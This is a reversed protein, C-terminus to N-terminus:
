RRYEVVEVFRYQSNEVNEGPKYVTVDIQRVQAPQDHRGYADALENTPSLGLPCGLQELRTPACLWIWGQRSLQERYFQRIEEAQRGTEFYIVRYGDLSGAQAYRVHLAGAPLPLAPILWFNPDPNTQLFGLLAVLGLISISVLIRRFTAQVVLLVLFFLLAYFLFDILFRPFLIGGNIVDVWTIKGWSDTPSGGGWNDCIFLVPSGAGLMGDCALSDPVQYNVSLLMAAISLLLSLFALLCDSLRGPFFRSIKM